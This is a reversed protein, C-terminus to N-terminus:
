ARIHALSDVSNEAGIILYVIIEIVLQFLNKDHSVYTDLRCIYNKLVQLFFDLLLANLARM